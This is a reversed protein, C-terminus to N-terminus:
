MYTIISHCLPCGNVNVVDRESAARHKCVTCLWTSAQNMLPRGSVVCGPFGTACNPCAVCYDPVLSECQLCESRPPARADRPPRKGFIELALEEYRPDIAELRVFARSCTALARCACSALALLAYVPEQDLLEEYERLRLATRMAAEPESAYLQRHALLLFHYAEAGRWAQEVVQADEGSAEALGALLGRRVQAPRTGELHEQVLLAALVYLKKLRLPPARRRAQEAALELLLKAAELPCDAKRYLEIAQLRRGSALLHRAYKALLEGIGPLRWTRALELAQDWRNSRVCTEVAQRVDACRVFCGVAQQCMGVSALMRAARRLGPAQEALQAATAALQEYEELRYHCDLLRDLARGHELHEKAAEWDQCAALQEGWRIHTQELQADSGGAGLRMLQLARPYDALKQRLAIALDRRDLELYAQEAEDYAGLFGLVEARRLGPEQIGRLRKVFRIGLYDACRVMANEAAELDGQRLAHEGLLRWLRPHSNDRVFEEAERLGVRALLEKTDRLSKIELDVLLEPRAEEPNRVLEDLLVCRIELDKFSCVYGSCAIPEEPELGRFVYMRSKELIAFLKPNDQAWCVAWADKREFKSVDDAKDKDRGDDRDRERDRDKVTALDLLRLLGQSDIIAARTSDCNISIKCPKRSTSYRKSLTVQPLSYQQVMGSERGVILLKESASICCIPDVTERRSIPSEYTKDRDLDQIVETVGTPTDDVHYLRDRRSKGSANLASNRPARFYWLLFNSKSAAIVMNQNMAVQNPELDLYKSDVPTSIANCVYLVYREESQTLDNKAALVCHDGCAVISILSSVYKFYRANTVTNWFTVCVGEKGVKDDTFVVTTGFYAWKYNPRINAFYINSDVSLAIRLSGGEWACCSIDKGPIKLSKLHDGLSSYFCLVNSNNKDEGMLIGAIALLSGYTNWVCCAMTMGTDVVIPNEDSIDRLLVMRGSQFCVALVPCDVATYGNKGNYWDLAVIGQVHGNSINELKTLFVGQDDYLHAEGNRTGFLLFKADPSWQVATLSLGKLEKGWIRNGEVSGVIVAGDEYVICIKQGNSSWSMGRVVSKNRNNIMEEYWSGKYLMWVIIVGNQDSSTLKQHEENWTVVQVHGNHGELTQNMSLNSSATMSRTKGSNNTNDTTSAGSDARIVKLLGDEGGVAIYGQKQNWAICNLHVNNPIAIKKSLYVFM